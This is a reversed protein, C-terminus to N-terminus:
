EVQLELPFPASVLELKYYEAEEKILVRKQKDIWSYVLLDKTETKVKFTDRGSINESGITKLFIEEVQSPKGDIRLTRNVKWEWDEDIALMWPKFIPIQANSLVFNNGGAENGNKDLCPVPQDKLGITSIGICSGGSVIGFAAESPIGKATYRYVYKEGPVLGLKYIKYLPAEDFTQSITIQPKFFLASLIAIGLFLVITIMFINLEKKM